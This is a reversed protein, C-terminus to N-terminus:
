VGIERHQVGALGRGLDLDLLSFYGIVIWVLSLLGFRSLTLARVLFPITIVAVVVPILQGFLNWITNRALL